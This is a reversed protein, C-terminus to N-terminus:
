WARQHYRNGNNEVSRLVLTEKSTAYVAMMRALLTTQLKCSRQPVSLKDMWVYLCKSEKIAKALETLQWVSM